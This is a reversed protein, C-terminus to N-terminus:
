GKHEGCVQHKLHVLNDLAKPPSVFEARGNVQAWGGGHFNPAFACLTAPPDRRLNNVKYATERSSIMTRDESELGVTIPSIQLRGDKRRAAAVGRQNQALFEQAGSLNLPKFEAM